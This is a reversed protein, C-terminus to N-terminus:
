RYKRTTLELVRDVNDNDIITAGADIDSPLIGYRLYLTLQVVPYYGQIYPQQDVTCRIHGAQILRLTEPSLDFGAAWYGQGAFHREIARGAAETDAQGTSLVIRIDQKERLVETIKVAGQAADNGTTIVTWRLNKPQLADQVGRRRDELASVGTDHMTLLVHSGDPILDAVREALRRGAEHFRQCVAALRANPTAQDDINFAVVPVGQDIAHQVVADFAQPDIINLAIGDYDQDLARQVLAAQAPVDAAETGLWDCDVQLQAAADQMGQKVPTFFVADKFCTIFALRLRSSQEPSASAASPAPPEAGGAQAAIWAGAVFTVLILPRQVM